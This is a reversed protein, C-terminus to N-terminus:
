KNSVFKLLECRNIPKTLYCVANGHFFANCVNKTDSLTSVIAVRVENGPKIKYDEELKRIASLCEHGDMGPMMIDLLILDYPDGNNLSYDFAELAEQGSSVTKCVAVDKLMGGLVMLNTLEDDVILIRM